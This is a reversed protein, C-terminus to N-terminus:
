IERKKKYVSLAVVVVITTLSATLTVKHSLPMPEKDNRDTFARWAKIEGYTM